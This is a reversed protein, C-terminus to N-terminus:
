EGGSLEQVQKDAQPLDMWADDVDVPISDPYEEDDSGEM